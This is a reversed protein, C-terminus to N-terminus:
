SRVGTLRLQNTLKFILLALVSLEGLFAMFITTTAAYELSVWPFTSFLWLMPNKSPEVGLTLLIIPPLFISALTVSAWLFRKPTKIMLVIQAITAYIMMLSFFFAVAFIAKIKDVNHFIDGSSSTISLVFIWILSPITAIIFNIAIALLAPSKEGKLLDQLLSKNRFGEGGSVDQHRYRVWDQLAQGQPSLMAILAVFLVLNYLCLLFVNTSVVNHLSYGNKLGQVAFGLIMVEFCFVLQYSQAKSLITANPNRFCRKMIQWVWFTCLAYNIFIFALFGVESAGIPLYFWELLALGSNNYSTNALKPLFYAMSSFPSLLMLWSSVFSSYSDGWQAFQMTIILFLLLLGSGLWPLLGSVKSGVLGFLLAASYFFIGSSILVAWFSFISSLPIEAGLGAWLHLPVATITFLYIFIPVGLLKGTLISTASQPTLRIFNLTGRREERALDNILLYTGAVLLTFVLIVSLALFLYGYHDQWWKQMNIADIPCFNQGFNANVEDLKLQNQAIQNRIEHLKIPDFQQSESSAFFQDQLQQYRQQLQIRQQEYFSSLGCYEGYFPYKEDPIGSFQVLWLLLQGVLSTVIAIGVSLAKLRGKLERFLQPNWDGLRDLFNMMM